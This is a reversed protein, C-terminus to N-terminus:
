AVQLSTAGINERIAAAHNRLAEKHEGTITHCKSMGVMNRIAAAQESDPLKDFSFYGGKGDDKLLKMFPLKRKISSWHRKSRGSVYVCTLSPNSEDEHVWGSKGAIIFRKHISSYEIREKSVNLEDTIELLRKTKRPKTGQDREKEKTFDDITNFVHVGSDSLYRLFESRTIDQSSWHVCENIAVDLPVLLGIVPVTQDFKNWSHLKGIMKRRELYKTYNFIKDLM